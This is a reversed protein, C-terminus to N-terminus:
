EDDKDFVVRAIAVAVGVAIGALLMLVFWSTSDTEM